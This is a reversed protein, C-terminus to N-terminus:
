EKSAVLVPLDRCQAPAAYADLLIDATLTIHRTLAEVARDLDRDLAAALVEDHEDDVDRATAGGLALSWRRYLDATERLSLAIEKLRRNRCGELLADHFAAHEVVWEENVRGSGDAAKQATRRLRHRAALLRSEWELDGDALAARLALTELVVRAGTLDHLDEVSLNVVHFGQQSEGKVLGREALRLLAERLVGARTNYRACLEASRLRTGPKLAGSLIDGRVLEYALEGKSPNTALAM